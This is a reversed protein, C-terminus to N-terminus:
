LIPVKAAKKESTDYFNKLKVDNFVVDEENFDEEKITGNLYDRFKKLAAFFPVKDIARPLQACRASSNPM